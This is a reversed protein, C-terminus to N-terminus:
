FIKSWKNADASCSMIIDSTSVLYVDKYGPLQIYVFRPVLYFTLKPKQLDLVWIYTPALEASKDYGEPLILNNSKPLDPLSKVATYGPAVTGYGHRLEDVEERANAVWKFFNNETPFVAALYKFLNM